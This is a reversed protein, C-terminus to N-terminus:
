AAETAPAWAAEAWARLREASWRERQWPGERSRWSVIVDGVAEGLWATRLPVVTRLSDGIEDTLADDGLVDAEAARILLPAHSGSVPEGEELDRYLAVPGEDKDELARALEVVFEGDVEGLAKEIARRKAGCEPQTAIELAKTRIKSTGHLAGLRYGVHMGACVAAAELRQAMTLELPKVPYKIVERLAQRLQPGEGEIPRMHQGAMSAGTLACWARQLEELEAADEDDRVVILAHLHVHWRPVYRGDELERRGTAEWRYVGALVIRRWLRGGAGDHRLQRWVGLLESLSEALGPGLSSVGVQDMIPGTVVYRRREAETLLVPGRSEEDHPITWTTHFARGGARLLAELEPAIEEATSAAEYHACVPCWRSGCGEPAVVPRGEPDRLVRWTESCRDLRGAIKRPKVAWDFRVERGGVVALGGYPTSFGRVRARDPQPGAGPDDRRWSSGDANLLFHDADCGRMADIVVAKSQALEPKLTPGWGGTTASARATAVEDVTSDVNGLSEPRVQRELHATCEARGEGCSRCRCRMAARPRPGGKVGPPNQPPQVPLSGASTSGSPSFLPAQAGPTM